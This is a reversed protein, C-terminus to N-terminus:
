FFNIIIIITLEGYISGGDDRQIYLLLGSAAIFVTSRRYRLDPSARSRSPLCAGRSRAYGFVGVSFPRLKIIHLILIPISPGNAISPLQPWQGQSEFLSIGTHLLSLTQARQTGYWYKVEKGLFLQPEMQANEMLETCARHSWILNFRQPMTHVSLSTTSPRMGLIVGEVTYHCSLGHIGDEQVDGGCGSCTHPSCLPVPPRSLAWPLVSLTMM